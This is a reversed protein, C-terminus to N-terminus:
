GPLVEEKLYRVCEPSVTAYDQIYLDLALFGDFGVRKLTECAAKLDIDGDWPLKHTHEGMCMNEIHGHVIFDKAREAAAAVDVESLLMHGIDFNLKLAPSGIEEALNLFVTLNRVLTNPEVEIAVRIGENEGIRCLEATRKKLVPYIEKDFGDPTGVPVPTSMIVVDVGYARATRILKKETEYLFDDVVYNAHCSLASIEFGEKERCVELIQKVTYEETIESLVSSGRLASLELGDYGTRQFFRICESISYKPMMQNRGALKM